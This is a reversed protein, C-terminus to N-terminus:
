AAEIVERVRSMRLRRLLARYNPWQAPLTGDRVCSLEVATINRQRLERCSARVTAATLLRPRCRLRASHVPLAVLLVFGMNRVAYDVLDFDPNEYGVLKCFMAAGPAFVRGDPSICLRRAVWVM